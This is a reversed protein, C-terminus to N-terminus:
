LFYPTDTDMWTDVTRLEIYPMQWWLCMGVGVVFFSGDQVVGRSRVRFRVGVAM